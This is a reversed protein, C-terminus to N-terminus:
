PAPVIEVFDFEAAVEAVGAHQGNAAVLSLRAAGMRLVTHDGIKVWDQGDLSFSGTFTSGRKDIRLWVPEATKRAGIFEVKPKGPRELTYSEYELQNGEGEIEKLFFPRRVLNYGHPKAWYGLALYRDPDVYVLVGAWNHQAALPIALKVTATYDAPLDRDLVLQNRLNDEKKGTIGGKQTVILLRGGELTWREKDEKLIRWGPGLRTGEFDDRFGGAPKAAPAPAQAVQQRVEAAAVQFERANAANYYRGGGGEAICELQRREDAKVDFGIVNVQVQTGAARLRRAVACPDGKCTELGDSVLVVVQRGPRGALAQGAAELAGAMPTMGVPRLARVGTEIRATDRQGVPVLVEIDGCDNTRRHGYASVGVHTDAPLDGVLGVLVDKAIEIKSRGDVQGAMSGSADIVLHVSTPEAACAAPAPLVALAVLVAALAGTPRKM